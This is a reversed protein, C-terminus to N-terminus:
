WHTCRSPASYSSQLGASQLRADRSSAAQLAQYLRMRGREEAQAPHSRGQRARPGAQPQPYGKSAPPTTTRACPPPTTPALPCPPPTSPQPATM